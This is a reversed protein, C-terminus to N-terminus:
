NGMFDIQKQLARLQFFIFLFRFIKPKKKADSVNVREVM